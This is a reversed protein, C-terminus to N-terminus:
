VAAACLEAEHLEEDIAAQLVEKSRMGILVQSGIVFTPVMLIGLQCAEGLEREHGQRYEDSQLAERFHMTNLGVEGALQTLVDPSGINMDEQFLAKMVCQNYAHAHGKDQEKAFQYGLFALHSHPSMSPLRIKVGMQAALPYVSQSWVRQVEIDEPLPMPQPEPRMEFPKWEAEVPKGQIAEQLAFEALFCHPCVYDFYVKISLM